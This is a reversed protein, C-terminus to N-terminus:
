YFLLYYNNIGEKWLYQINGFDYYFWYADRSTLHIILTTVLTHQNPDPGKLNSPTKSQYKSYHSLSSFFLTPHHLCFPSAKHIDNPIERAEYRSSIRDGSRASIAASHRRPKRAKNTWGALAHYWKKTVHNWLTGLCFFAIPQWACRFTHATLVVSSSTGLCSVRKAFHAGM